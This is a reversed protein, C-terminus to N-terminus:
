VGVSKLEVLEGVEGRWEDLRSRSIKVGGGV